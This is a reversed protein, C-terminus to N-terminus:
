LSNFVCMKPAKQTPRHPYKGPSDAKTLDSGAKDIRSPSTRAEDPAALRLGIGRVTHLYRPAASREGLKSRLTSVHANVTRTTSALPKNWVARSLEQRSVVRGAQHALYSLVDFERERLRLARGGLEATRAPDDVRLQGINITTGTVSRAPSALARRIRADLEAASFPKLLVGEVDDSLAALAQSDEGCLAMVVVPAETAARVRRLVAATGAVDPLSLDLVILDPDDLSVVEEAAAVTDATRPECGLSVLEHTFTSRLVSNDEVLLVIAKSGRRNAQSPSSLHGAGARRNNRGANSKKESVGTTSSNQNDM